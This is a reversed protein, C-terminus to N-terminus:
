DLVLRQLVTRFSEELYCMRCMREVPSELATVLERAAALLDARAKEDGASKTAVQGKEEINRLLDSLPAHPDM